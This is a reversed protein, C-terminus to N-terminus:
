VGEPLLNVFCYPDFHEGIEGPDAAPGRARELEYWAMIQCSGSCRKTYHECGHCRPHKYATLDRFIRWRSSDRWITRLDDRRLDGAIFVAVREGDIRDPFSAPSYSCGYVHGQAGVVCAEVGAACTTKKQVLLDHSTTVDPDLLDITTSFDVDPHALRQRQVEGIFGAFGERTFMEETMEGVSRGYPRLPILNLSEVGHIECQQAVEDISALNHGAVVMNIRLRASTRTSLVELARLVRDYTGAGRVADNIARDGDLSVIYWDVAWEPLAELQEDTFVGNTGVSVHMGRERADAVIEPFYPLTTCEGGTYRLEFVGLEYAQRNVDIIEERSLEGPLPRGSENFCSRCRLNCDRTVEFYIRKPAAVADSPLLDPRVDSPVHRIRTRGRPTEVATGALLGRLVEDERARRLAAGFGAATATVLEALRRYRIPALEVGRGSDRDFWFGGRREERLVFDIM